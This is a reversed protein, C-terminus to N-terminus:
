DANDLPERWLGEESLELASLDRRLSLGSLRYKVVASVLANRASLLASEAELVDRTSARGAQQFLDSSHVRREAVRLAEAQIVFTSWASAIDRLGTRVAQRANDEATELARRASDVGLAAVRYAKRESAREWPLGGDLTLSYDVKDSTRGGDKRDQGVRVSGGLGLDPRLADAAIRLAREADELRYRALILDHRNTLALALAEPEAFPPPPATLSVLNTLGPSLGMASQLRDLERMDVEIAADVPLGLTMKFGDIQAQRAQVAGVLQDDTRLLDQRTQDLEVQPLRGADCLMQARRYNDSLRQRNEQLAVVRQSAELLSYYGAAVQVAYNQRFSEFGYIAYILNREAQTLAEMAILRGSGRLLPIKVTADGLLGLTTSRDGTLLRVVDLGLSATLTAGHALKRTLTAKGGGDAQETTTDGSEGGDAESRALGGGLLGEFTTEFAHQQLQLDLAASFVSEKSEQYENSNRAGAALADDLTLVLPVPLPPGNTAGEERALQLRIRLRDSPRTITFRNTNGTVQQRYDAALRNGIRETQRLAREPTMCGVLALLLAVAVWVFM